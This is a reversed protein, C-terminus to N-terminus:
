EKRNKNKIYTIMYIIIGLSYVGVFVFVNFLKINWRYYMLVILLLASITLVLRLSIGIISFTTTGRREDIRRFISSLVYIFAIIGGSLIFGLPIDIHTPILFSTVAFGLLSALFVLIATLLENDLKQLLKM